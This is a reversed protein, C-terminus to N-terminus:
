GEQGIYRERTLLATGAANDSSYEASAFFVSDFSDEIRRRIISNSSVGGAYVIKIDPYKKRVNESLKQVTKGIFEFVFASVYSKDGTECYLKSAMNELGSLNCDFGSVCIKPSTIKRENLNALANMERGCPFNLGMLVGARDIAQGAHLDKSGGLIKINFKGDAQGVYLIETTGGSIHFSVFDENTCLGSSYLAARIHGSQHSFGYVPSAYFAGLTKAVAEGVLFCPMYSGAADRPYASYGVAKIKYSGCLERVKDCLLPINKIHAFVADSQRLGSEGSKVPLLLKFNGIVEGGDSVIGISTTYNSTDIGVFVNKEKM